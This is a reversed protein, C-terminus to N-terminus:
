LRAISVMATMWVGLALLGGVAHALLIRGRTQRWLEFRGDLACALWVLIGLLYYWVMAGPLATRLPLDNSASLILAVVMAVATWSAIAVWARHPRRPDSLDVVESM